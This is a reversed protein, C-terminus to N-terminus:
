ENKEGFLYDDVIVYDLETNDLVYLADEVKTLIPNGLINFSTNLIVSVHGQNELEKLIDYFRKHQKETVTQLRSTKDIHTIAKLEEEYEEKVTPAYSM